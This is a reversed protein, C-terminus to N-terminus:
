KSPPSNTLPPLGWVARTRAPLTEFYNTPLDLMSLYNTPLPPYKLAPAFNGYEAVTGTIGSVEFGVPHNSQDGIWEQVGWRVNFMPLPYIAGNTEEFKYQSVEPPEILHLEKEKLGLKHLANRAIAEAEKATIKSKIKALQASEDDKYRFSRPWYRSDYFHTLVGRTFGWTYPGDRQGVGGDLGFPTARIQFTVNNVALPQPIDLKWAERMANAQALMYGLGFEEFAPTNSAITDFGTLVYPSRAAAVLNTPALHIDNTNGQGCAFGPLLLPTGTVLWALKSNM